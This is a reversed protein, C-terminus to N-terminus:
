DIKLGMSRIYGKQPICNEMKSNEVFQMLVRRMTQQDPRAERFDKYTTRNTESYRVVSSDWEAPRRIGMMCSNDLKKYPWFTYGIGNNELTESMKRQWSISNHGLEGMFMPKSSRKRFSLFDGINAEGATGDYKHCTYMMDPDFSFDSFVNFNLNWQAGGLMVIHDPDHRRIVSVAKKYIGELRSNMYNRAASGFYDAIPENLLEYGLIQPEDAYHEAIDEWVSCFTEEDEKEYFLWPFGYSDDINHGTQGGPASHMDLIVYIGYKRCWSLLNDIIAFGEDATRLGMYDEDTFLRYSFPVRVTNVGRSSLFAIDKETIYRSLYEKWFRDTAGPGIMQRLMLDMKYRSAVREESFDFMYAEPLLWNSLNVGKILFPEGEVTLSIGEVKVFPRSTAVAKTGSFCLIAGGLVLLVIKRMQGM